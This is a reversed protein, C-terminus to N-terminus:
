VVEIVVFPNGEEDSFVVQWLNDKEMVSPYMKDGLAAARRYDVRMKGIEKEKPLYNMAETVYCGNNVHYNSDLFSRKVIVPTEDMNRIRFDAEFVKIKRPAYEMELAPEMDYGFIDEEVPKVPRQKELDMFIWISNARVLQQGACDLIDFNRYGYMGKFAYPWTRITIDEKFEPYREVEIQWSSLFWARQSKAVETLGKGISESHFITCDQFYHAIEAMDAKLNSGVQSYTVRNKMEYM